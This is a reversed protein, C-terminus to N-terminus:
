EDGVKRAKVSREGITEEHNEDYATKRENRFKRSPGEKESWEGKGSCRSDFTERKIKWVNLVVAHVTRRCRDIKM